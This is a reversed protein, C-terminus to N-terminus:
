LGKRNREHRRRDEDSIDDADALTKATKVKAETLAKDIVKRINM